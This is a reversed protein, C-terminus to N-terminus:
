KKEKEGRLQSFPNPKPKGYKPGCTAGMPEGREAEKSAQPQSDESGPRTTDDPGGVGTLPRLENEESSHDTQCQRRRWFIVGAIAGGIILVLLVVVVSVVMATPSKGTLEQGEIKGVDTGEVQVQALLRAQGALFREDTSRKKSTVETLARSYIKYKQGSALEKNKYGGKNEGDGLLFMMKTKVDSAPIQASIYFNSGLDNWDTVTDTWDQVRHVLIQYYSIPGNDEAAPWITLNISSGAKEIQQPGGPNEPPPPADIVTRITVMTSNDGHGCHTTAVVVFNYQTDPYLDTIEQSLAVTQVANTHKFKPYYTKTGEYIVTYMQVDDRYRLPKKWSLAVSRKSATGVKVDRPPGPANTVIELPPSFPGAGASTYARVLVHYTSCAVLEQLTVMTNTTNGYRPASLSPSGAHYVRIDKVEYALVEGNSKERTLPDWSIRYTTENLSQSAIKSPATSPEDQQTKTDQDVSWPGAHDRNEVRVKIFYLTWKKLNPITHFTTDINTVNALLEAKGSEKYSISYQAFPGNLKEVNPKKWEVYISQSTVATTNDVQITIEPTATLTEFTVPNSWLGNGLVSSAMVTVNYKSFPKLNILEKRSPSGPLIALHYLSTSNQYQLTISTIPYEDERLSYNTWTVLATRATVMSKSVGTVQRPKELYCLLLMCCVDIHLCSLLVRQLVFM